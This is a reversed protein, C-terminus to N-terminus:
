RLRRNCGLVPTSRKLSDDLNPISTTRRADVAAPIGRSGAPRRGRRCQDHVDISTQPSVTPGPPGPNESDSGHDGVRRRGQGDVVRRRRAPRGRGSLSGSARLAGFEAFTGLFRELAERFSEDDDVIAVVPIRMPGHESTARYSRSEARRAQPKGGSVRSVASRWSQDVTPRSTVSKPLRRM